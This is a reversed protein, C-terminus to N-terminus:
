QGPMNGILANWTNMGCYEDVSNHSEQYIIDYFKSRMNKVPSNSTSSTGWPVIAALNRAAPFPIGAINVGAPAPLRKTFAVQLTQDSVNVSCQPLNLVSHFFHDWRM